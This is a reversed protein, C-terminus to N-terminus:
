ARTDHPVAGYLCGTCCSADIRCQACHVISQQIWSHLCLMRVTFSQGDYSAHRAYGCRGLRAGKSCQAGHNMRSMAAFAAAATSKAAHTVVSIMM